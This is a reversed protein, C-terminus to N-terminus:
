SPRQYISFHSAMASFAAARAFVAASLCADDRRQVTQKQLEPRTWFVRRDDSDRQIRPFTM